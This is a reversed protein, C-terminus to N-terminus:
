PSIKISINARLELSCFKVVFETTSVAFFEFLTDDVSDFGFAAALPLIGVMWFIVCHGSWGWKGAPWQIVNTFVEYESLPPYDKNHTFYTNDRFVADQLHVTMVAAQLIFSIEWGFTLNVYKWDCPSLPNQDLKFLHGNPPERAGVRDGKEVDWFMCYLAIPTEAPPDWHGCELGPEIEKIPTGM